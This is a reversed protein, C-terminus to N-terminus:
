KCAPGLQRALARRRKDSLDEPPRQRYMEKPPGDYPAWFQGGTVEVMEINCSQYREHISAFKELAALDTAGLSVTASGALLAALVLAFIKHRMM